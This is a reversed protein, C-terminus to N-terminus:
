AGGGGGQQPFDTVRGYPLKKRKLVAGSLTPEGLKLNKQEKAGLCQDVGPM